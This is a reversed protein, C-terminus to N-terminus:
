RPPPRVERARPPEWPDAHRPDRVLEHDTLSELFAILDARESDTLEFPVLLASRLPSARGDGASPGDEIVRGGAEYIRIVEELTAVSGDHMYPATLAVNRLSPVRFRGMDQALGSEAILGPAEPPYAGRGDLDYLGINHFAGPEGTSAATAVASTLAFGAHCTACGLRPSFFLDAGRRAGATLADEEGQLFRDFDSRYSILSRVFSALALRALDLDIAQGPFAEAFLDRYRPERELREVIDREAGAMGMELPAAGFMPRRLQEELRTLRAHSWTLPAAYLANALSPANLVGTEGLAGVSVAQDDAFALEQRHCSSCSTSGDVSLRADHFLHRGLEIAAATPPNDPPVIPEPFHAPIELAAWAGEAPDAACGAQAATAAAACVAALRALHRM